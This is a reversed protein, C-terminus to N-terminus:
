ACGSYIFLIREQHFGAHVASIRIGAEEEELDRGRCGRGKDDDTTDFGLPARAYSSTHDMTKPDFLELLIM